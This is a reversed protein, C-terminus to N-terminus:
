DDLLELLRGATLRRITRAVNRDASRRRRVVAEENEGDRRRGLGVKKRICTLGVHTVGTEKDSHRLCVLLVKLELHSLHPLWEDVLRNLRRITAPTRGSNDESM